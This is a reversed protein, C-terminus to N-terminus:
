TLLMQLIAPIQEPLDDAILGPGFKRAASAHILAALAAADTAPLSRALLGTAIGALTDGSGATALWPVDLATHIYCAGTPAAIVTDPGKLLTVANSQHAAMRLMDIRSPTPTLQDTPGRGQKAAINPFLRSFEGEHPTMVCKEHLRAFLSRDRSLATLADADLLCPRGAALIAPLLATARAIGCGPGICIATIRPDALLDQLEQTDDVPHRMLADPTTNHEPMAQSPPCITVLGAGIRLAARAALRAAGAHEAGGAIVLAHGHRFKHDLPSKALRQAIAPRVQSRSFPFQPWIAQLPPAPSVTGKTEPLGIDVIQLDGTLLCGPRLLHGPKPRHFAVTMNARPAHQMHESSWGPMQGSDLDLGSICDIAYIRGSYREADDNRGGLRLLIRHLDGAVKRTLGTGFIADVYINAPPECMLQADSLPRIQGRKLWMDKMHAADAGPTNDMGLVRVSWGADHLHRAVVYGDGGNNGPGCLVIVDKPSPTAQQILAAAAAGAQEMLALGTVAGSGIADSEIARMQASTLIESGILM